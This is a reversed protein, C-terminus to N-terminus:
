KRTLFNYRALFTEKAEEHSWPNIRLEYGSKGLTPEEVDKLFDWHESAPKLDRVEAKLMMADVRKMEPSFPYNLGFRKAMDAEHMKEIAQYDPLLQKLPTPVDCLFAEMADHMLLELEYGPSAIFSALVCHQAVSYHQKVQGGFRCINSLGLAIDEITYDNKEPDVYNYYRGSQLLIGNAM